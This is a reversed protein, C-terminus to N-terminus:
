SSPGSAFNGASELFESLLNVQRHGIPCPTQGLLFTVLGASGDSRTLANLLSILPTHPQASIGREKPFTRRRHRLGVEGPWKIDLDEENM